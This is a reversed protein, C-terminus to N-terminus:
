IRNAIHNDEYNFGYRKSICRGVLLYFFFCKIDIQMGFYVSVGSLALIWMFIIFSFGYAKIKLSSILGKLLFILYASAFFIGFHFLLYVFTNDIYRYDGYHSSIYTAAQGKGLFYGKFDMQSFIEEYQWRRTSEFARGVIYEFNSSFYQVIIYIAAISLLLITIFGIILKSLPYKKDRDSNSKIVFALLGIVSQILWGRTGYIISVLVAFILAVYVLIREIKKEHQYCMGYILSPFFGAALYIIHPCNGIQGGFRNLYDVAYVFSTLLSGFGIMIMPKKAFYWIDDDIGLFAVITLLYAYCSASGALLEKSGYLVLTVGVYVTTIILFVHLPIFGTTPLRKRSLVFLILIILAGTTLAVVLAGTGHGASYHMTNSGSMKYYYGFSGMDVLYVTLLIVIIYLINKKMNIVIGIKGQSLLGTSHNM